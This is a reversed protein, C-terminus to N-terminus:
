LKERGRLQYAKFLSYAALAISFAALAWFFLGNRKRKANKEELSILDSGDVKLSYVWSIKESPRLWLSKTEVPMVLESSPMSLADVVKDKNNSTLEIRFDRQDGSLNLQYIYHSNRQYTIGGSVVM